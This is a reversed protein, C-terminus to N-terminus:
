IGLSYLSLNAPLSEEDIENVQLESKFPDTEGSYEICSMIDLMRDDKQPVVTQYVKQLFYSFSNCPPLTFGTEERTDSPLTHMEAVKIHGNSEGRM